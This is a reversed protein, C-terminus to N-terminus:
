SFSFFVFVSVALVFCLALTFLSYNGCGAGVPCEVSGETQWV